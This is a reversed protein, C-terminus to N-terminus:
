SDNEPGIPVNGIYPPNVAYLTVFHADPEGYEGVLGEAGFPCKRPIDNFYPMRPFHKYLERTLKMRCWRLAFEYKGTGLKKLCAEEADDIVVVTVDESVGFKFNSPYQYAVSIRYRATRCVDVTIAHTEEDMGTGMHVPFADLKNAEAQERVLKNM